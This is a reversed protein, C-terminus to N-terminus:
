ESSAATAAERRRTERKTAVEHAYRRAAGVTRINAVREILARRADADGACLELDAKLHIMLFGPANGKSPFPADDSFQSEMDIETLSSEIAQPRVPSNLAAPTDTRPSSQILHLLTNAKADRQTLPTVDFLKEVTALVSTHDYPWTDVVGKAVWPSVIVAPVRVGLRDFGFGYQNYTASSGDNPPWGRIPGINDYFGGHEDYTVILLSKYWHPSNRIAEYVAKILGEGGYVDDMPHQSSGGQYTTDLVNGYNPEIFTYQFPYESQLDKAFHALSNIDLINIGRLAHVIPMAGGGAHPAPRHSYANTDDNYIRWRKGSAKLRDFITGNPFAFGHYAEWAILEFTSPSHDLGGSSAAHVFMRNPWTPGPLSSFWMNCLAFEAALQYTVPLTAATNFGRMIDGIKDAPPPPGGETTSTAYNAAFGTNNCDPYPRGAHFNAQSGTLQQVVDPFEHGPDTAMSSPAKNDVNYVAGDIRNSLNWGVSTNPLGSQGFINAFSRNELMLVFVHDIQEKVATLRINGLEGANDGAVKLVYARGGGGQIAHNLGGGDMQLWCDAFAASKINIVGNGRDVLWFKAWPGVGYQANITGGAQYATGDMRLFINPSLTSEFSVTGDPNDVKHFTEYGDDDGYQLNVTGAGNNSPSTVGRADLRLCVGSFTASKILYKM